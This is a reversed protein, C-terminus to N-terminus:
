HSGIPGGVDVRVTGGVKVCTETGAVKVFGPGFAACGNDTARKAPPLRDLPTTYDPRTHKAPDALAVSAPLAAIIIILSFSRMGARIGHRDVIGGAISDGSRSCALAILISEGRKEPGYSYRKKILL